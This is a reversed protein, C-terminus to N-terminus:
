ILEADVEVDVGLLGRTLRLSGNSGRRKEARELVRDVNNLELGYDAKVVDLCRERWEKGEDRLRRLPKTVAKDRGWM